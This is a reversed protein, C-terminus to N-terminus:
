ELIDLLKDQMDNATKIVKASAAYAQEAVRLDVIDHALGQTGSMAASPVSLLRSRFQEQVVPGNESAVQVPEVPRYDETLVNSINRARIEVRSAAAQLGALGYQVSSVM